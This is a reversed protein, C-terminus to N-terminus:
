RSLEEQATFWSNWKVGGQEQVTPPLLCDKEFAEPHLPLLQLGAPEQEVRWGGDCRTFPLTEWVQNTNAFIAIVGAWNKFHKEHPPFDPISISCCPVQSSLKHWKSHCGLVPARKAEVWAPLAQRFLGQESFHPQYEEDINQSTVWCVRNISYSAHAGVEWSIALRFM